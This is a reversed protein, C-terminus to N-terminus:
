AMSNKIVQMPRFHIDNQGNAEFYCCFDLYSVYTKGGVENVFHIPKTLCMNNQENTAM